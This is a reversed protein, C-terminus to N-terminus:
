PRLSLLGLAAACMAVVVLAVILWFIFEHRRFVNEDDDVAKTELAEAVEDQVERTARMFEHIGHKMGNLLEPIRKAGLMVLIIVLVAFAEPWGFMAQASQM